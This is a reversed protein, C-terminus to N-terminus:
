IRLEALVDGVLPDIQKLVLYHKVPLTIALYLFDSQSIQYSLFLRAHISAQALLACSLHHPLESVLCLGEEPDNCSHHEIFVM